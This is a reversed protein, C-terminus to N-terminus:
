ASRAAGHQPSTPCARWGDLGASRTPWWRPVPAQRRRQTARIAASRTATSIPRAPRQAPFGVGIDGVTDFAGDVPQAADGIGVRGCKGPGSLALYSGAGDGVRVLGRVPWSILTM